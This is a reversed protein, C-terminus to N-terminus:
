LEGDTVSVKLQNLLFVKKKEKKKEMPLHSPIVRKNDENWNQFGHRYSKEELFRLIECKAKM